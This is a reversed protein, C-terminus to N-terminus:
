LLYLCKKFNKKEVGEANVSAEEGWPFLWHIQDLPGRPLVWADANKYSELTGGLSLVVPRSAKALRGSTKHQNCQILTENGM